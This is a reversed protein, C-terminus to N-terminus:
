ELNAISFIEWTAIVSGLVDGLVLIGLSGGISPNSSYLLPTKPTRLIAVPNLPKRIRLIHCFWTGDLLLGFAGHIAYKGVNVLFKLWIYTFLCHM